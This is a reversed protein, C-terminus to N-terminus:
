PVVAVLDVEVLWGPVLLGTTGGHDAPPPTPFFKRWVEDFAFFDKLDTLFM